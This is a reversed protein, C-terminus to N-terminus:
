LYEEAKHRENNKETDRRDVMHIKVMGIKVLCFGKRHRQRCFSKGMSIHILSLRLQSLSQKLLSNLDTKRQLIYDWVYM